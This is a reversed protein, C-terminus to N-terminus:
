FNLLKQQSTNQNLLVSHSLRQSSGLTHTGKTICRLILLENTAHFHVYVHLNYLFNTSANLTLLTSIDNYIILVLMSPM